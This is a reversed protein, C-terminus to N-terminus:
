PWLLELSIRSTSLGTDSILLCNDLRLVMRMPAKRAVINSCPGTIPVCAQDSKSWVVISGYVLHARRRSQAESCHHHAQWPNGQSLLETDHDGLNTNEHGGTHLMSQYDSVLGPVEDSSGSYESSTKPSGYPPMWCPKKPTSSHGLRTFLTSRLAFRLDELLHTPHNVHMPVTSHSSDPKARGRVFSDFLCKLKTIISAASSSTELLFVDPIYRGLQPHKINEEHITITRDKGACLKLNISLEFHASLTLVLAPM